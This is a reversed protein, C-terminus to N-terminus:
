DLTRAGVDGSGEVAIAPRVSQGDNRRGRIRHTFHHRAGIERREMHESSHHRLICRDRDLLDGDIGHHGAATRGVHGHQNGRHLAHQFRVEVKGAHLAGGPRMTRQQQDVSRYACLEVDIAGRAGQPMAPLGIGGDPAGDPQDEVVDASGADALAVHRRQAHGLVVGVTQTFVLLLIGPRWEMDVLSKVKPVARHRHEAGICGLVDRIVDADGGPLNQCHGGIHDRFEAPKVQPRHIVDNRAVRQQDESGLMRLANRGRSPALLIHLLEYEIVRGNGILRQFGQAPLNVFCLQDVRRASPTHGQERIGAAELNDHRAPRALM